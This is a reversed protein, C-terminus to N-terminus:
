AVLAALRYLLQLSAGAYIGAVLDDSMIGLGGHLHQGIWTIPWPKLRHLLHFAVLCLAWALPHHPVMSLSVLLGGIEDIAIPQANARDFLKEATGAVLFGLVYFSLLMAVYAPLPLNRLPLWLLLAIASVAIGRTGASLNGAHLGTAVAIIVHNV